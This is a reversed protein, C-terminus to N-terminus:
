EFALLVLEEETFMTTVDPESFTHIDGVPAM